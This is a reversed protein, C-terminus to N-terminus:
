CLLRRFNTWMYIQVRRRGRRWLLWQWWWWWWWCKWLHWNALPFLCFDKRESMLHQSTSCFFTSITHVFISLKCKFHPWKFELPITIALFFIVQGSVPPIGFKCKKNFNMSPSPAFIHWVIYLIQRLFLIVYLFWPPICVTLCVSLCRILYLIPFIQLSIHALINVRDGPWIYGNTPM